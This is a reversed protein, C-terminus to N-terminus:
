SDLREPVLRIIDERGDQEEETDDERQDLKCCKCDEPIHLENLCLAAGQQM